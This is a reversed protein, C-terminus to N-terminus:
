KAGKKTKPRPESSSVKNKIESASKSVFDKASNFANVTADHAKDVTHSIKVVTNLPDQIKDISTDVLDLTKNTKDVTINLSGTTKILKYLFIILFVLVAAILIPILEQSLDSFSQIFEDM